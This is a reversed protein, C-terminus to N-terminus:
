RHKRGAGGSIARIRSAERCAARGGEITAPRRNSNLMRSRIKWPRFRGDSGPFFQLNEHGVLKYVLEVLEAMTIGEDQLQQRWQNDRPLRALRSSERSQYETNQAASRNSPNESRVRKEPM